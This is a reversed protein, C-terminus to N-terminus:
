EGKIEVYYDEFDEKDPFQEFLWDWADDFSDFELPTGINAGYASFNFQRTHQLVNSSWDKIIYKKKSM